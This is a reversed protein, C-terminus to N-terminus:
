VEIMNKLFEIGEKNNFANYFRILLNSKYIQAGFRDRDGWECEMWDYVRRREERSISEMFKPFPQNPYEWKITIVPCVDTRDIIVEYLDTKENAM